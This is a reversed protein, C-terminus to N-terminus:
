DLTCDPGTDPPTVIEPPPLPLDCIRVVRIKLRRGHNEIHRDDSYILSMAATKLNWTTTDVTAPKRWSRTMGPSFAKRLPVRRSRRPLTFGCGPSMEITSFVPVNRIHYSV